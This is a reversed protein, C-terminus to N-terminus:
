LKANSIPEIPAYGWELPNEPIQTADDSLSRLHWQMWAVAMQFDGKPGVPFAKRYDSKSIWQEASRALELTRNRIISDDFSCSIVNHAFDNRIRRVIHLDRAFRGSILGIRYTIDIKASFTGLPSYAGDLLTDNSNAVPTLRTRLITELASDLLSAALVVCARDSEKDFEKVLFNFWHEPTTFIKKESQPMIIPSTSQEEKKPEISPIKTM